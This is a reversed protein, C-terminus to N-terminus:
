ARFPILRPLHRAPSPACGGEPIRIPRATQRLRGSLSSVDIEDFGNADEFLRRRVFLPQSPHACGRLRAFTKSITRAIAAHLSGPEAPSEFVGWRVRSLRLASAILLDANAPLRMHPELFLLVDGCACDAGANFRAALAAPAHVLADCLPLALQTTLDRSGGDAVVLEADRARLDQLAGLARVLDEAENLAAIVISLRM